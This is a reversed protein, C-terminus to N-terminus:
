LLPVQAQAGVSPPQGLGAQGPSYKGGEGQNAFGHGTPPAKRHPAALPPPAKADATMRTGTKSGPSLKVAGRAVEGEGAGKPEKKLWWRLSTGERPQKGREEKLM